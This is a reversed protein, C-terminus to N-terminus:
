SSNLRYNLGVEGVRSQDELRIPYREPVSALGRPMKNYLYTLLVASSTAAAIGLTIKKDVKEELFKKADLAFSAM